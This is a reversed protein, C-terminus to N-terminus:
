FRNLSRFRSASNFVPLWGSVQSFCVRPSTSLFFFAPPNRSLLFFWYTNRPRHKANSISASSPGYFVERQVLSTAPITTTLSQKM